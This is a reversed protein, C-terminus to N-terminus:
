QTSEDEESGSYKRLDITWTNTKKDINLDRITMKGQFSDSSLWQWPGSRMEFWRGILYEEYKPSFEELTGRIRIIQSYAGLYKAVNVGSQPFHLDLDQKPEKEDHITPDMFANKKRPEDETVIEELPKCGPFLAQLPNAALEVFFRHAWGIPFIVPLSSGEAKAIRDVVEETPRTAEKYTDNVRYTIKTPFLVLRRHGPLLEVAEQIWKICDDLVKHGCFIQLTGEASITISAEDVANIKAIKIGYEAESDSRRIPESKCDIRKRVKNWTANFDINSRYDAEMYMTFKENSGPPRQRVDTKEILEVNELPIVKLDLIDLSFIASKFSDQYTSRDLVLYKGSVKDGIVGLVFGETGGYATDDEKKWVVAVAEGLKPQYHKM